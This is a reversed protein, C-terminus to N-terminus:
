QVFNMATMSKFVVYIYRPIEKKEPNQKIENIYEFYEKM